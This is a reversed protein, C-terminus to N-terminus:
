LSLEFLTEYVPGKPTLTSSILYLKDIPFNIPVVRALRFDNAEKIRALTVHPNFEQASKIELVTEIQKALDKLEKEPEVGMWVVRPGRRDGFFGLRAIAAKIKRAKILNMKEIIKDKDGDAIFLFTLHINEKTVWSAKVNPYYNKVKVLEDKISDPIKAAIFLRM